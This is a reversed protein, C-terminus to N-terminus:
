QNVAIGMDTLVQKMEGYQDKIQKVWAEGSTYDPSAQMNKIAKVFEPNKTIEETVKGLKELIEKPTGKPAVIGGWGYYNGQYGLESFTPAEPYLESKTGMALIKMKGASTMSSYNQPFLFTMHAHGGMVAAAAEGGSKYEVIKMQVGNKSFWSRMAFTLWSTAAPSAFIYKRPEKKAAEALEKLNKWPADAPAVAACNAVMIRAIYEFSDFNYDAGKVTLPIIINPGAQGLFLTYGDAKARAAFLSGTLGGGGTKNVVVVPQGLKEKAFEAWVRATLDSDGGAGFPSVLQIPKDPYEAASVLMGMCLTLLCPVVLVALVKKFM